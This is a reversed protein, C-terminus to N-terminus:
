SDRLSSFFASYDSPYRVFAPINTYLLFIEILILLMVLALNLIVQDGNLLLLEKLFRVSSFNYKSVNLCAYVKPGFKCTNM